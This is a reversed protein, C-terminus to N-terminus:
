SLMEKLLEIRRKLIKVIMEKRIEPLAYQNYEQPLKDDIHYIIEAIKQEDYKGLTRQIGAIVYNRFDNRYSKVKNILEYHRIKDKEGAWRIEAKARNIIGNFMDENHLRREIEDNAYERVLCCGSDYIPAFEGFLPQIQFSVDKLDSDKLDPFGKIRKIVTMFREKLKPETITRVPTIIGWNEQHRDSNGIISDFLVIDIIRYIHEEMGLFTLADNIFQFTYDKYSAKNKPDYTNDYATLISIGEVLCEDKGCMNKSICGVLAEKVAIDYTLLNFGLERGVASAIIESWFEYYYDRDARNMSTKFFYLESTSPKEVVCKSRTGKTQFHPKENWNTVDYFEPM